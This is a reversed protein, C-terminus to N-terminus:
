ARLFESGGACVVLEKMSLAKLRLSECADYLCTRTPLAKRDETVVVLNPGNQERAMLAMGAVHVQTQELDDDFDALDPCLGLVEEQWEGAVSKHVRSGSVAKIWVHIPEDTAYKACDKVVLDPFFLHEAKVMDTLHNLVQMTSRQDLCLKPLHLVAHADVVCRYEYEM